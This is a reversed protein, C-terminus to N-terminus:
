APFISTAKRWIVMGIVGYILFPVIMQLIYFAVIAMDRGMRSERITDVLTQWNVGQQADHNEFM